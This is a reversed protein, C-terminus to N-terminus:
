AKITNVEIPINPVPIPEFYAFHNGEQVKQLPKMHIHYLIYINGNMSINVNIKLKHILIEKNSIVTFEHAYNGVIIVNLNMSYSFVLMDFSTAWTGKEVINDCWSRLDVKSKKFIQQMCQDNYYLYSVIQRLYIRMEQVNKFQNSMLQNKLMSHFFVIVMEMLMLLSLIIDM